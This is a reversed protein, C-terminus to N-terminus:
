SCYRFLTTNMLVSFVTRLLYLSGNRPSGKKLFKKPSLRSGGSVRLCIPRPVPKMTDPSPYIQVFRWTISPISETV